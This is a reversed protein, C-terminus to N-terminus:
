SLRLTVRVVREVAKCDFVDGLYCFQQVEELVGGDVVLGADEDDDGEEDRM